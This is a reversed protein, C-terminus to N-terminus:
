SVPRGMYKESRFIGHQNEYFVCTGRKLDHAIRITTPRFKADRDLIHDYINFGTFYACM